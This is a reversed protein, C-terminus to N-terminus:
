GGIGQRQYKKKDEATKKMHCSHCLSQLNNWDLRRSWDVEVPIVHDVETAPTVQNNGLCHECLPDHKLKRNRMKQWRVSSYFKAAKKDRQFRDYREHRQKEVKKGHKECYAQGSVLESCGPYACPKKARKPM